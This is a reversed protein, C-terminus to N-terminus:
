EGLEGSAADRAVISYTNVPRLPRQDAFVQVSVLIM